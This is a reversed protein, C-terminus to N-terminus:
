NDDSEYPLEVGPNYAAFCINKFQVNDAHGISATVWSDNLDEM